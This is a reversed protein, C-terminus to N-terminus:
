SGPKEKLLVRLREKLEARRTQFTTEELKGAKHLDDLFLIQDM